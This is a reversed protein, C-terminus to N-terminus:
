DIVANVFHEAASLESDQKLSISCYLGVRLRVSESKPSYKSYQCAERGGVNDDVCSLVM